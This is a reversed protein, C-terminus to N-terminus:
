KSSDLPEDIVMGLALGISIIQDMNVILGQIKDPSFYLQEFHCSSLNLGSFTTNLWTSKELHCDNFECHKWDLDSFESLSLDSSLWGTYRIKAFNFSTYPMTCQKFECHSIYSDAFNVGTLRCNKFLVRHFSSDIWETNSFDCSDFITDSIEIAECQQNSFTTKQWRNKDIILRNIQTTDEKTVYLFQLNDLTNNSLYEPFCTKDELKDKILIPHNRKM